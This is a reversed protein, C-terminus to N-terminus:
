RKVENEIALVTVDISIPMAIASPRMRETSSGADTYTSASAAVSDPRVGSRCRSCIDDPTRKRSSYEPRSSMVFSAM